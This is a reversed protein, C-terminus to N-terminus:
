FILFFNSIQSKLKIMFFFNFTSRLHFKQLYREFYLRRFPERLEASSKKRQKPYNLSYTDSKPVKWDRRLVTRPCNLQTKALIKDSLRSFMFIMKKWILIKKGLLAGFYFSKLFIKSTGSNRRQRLYMKYM